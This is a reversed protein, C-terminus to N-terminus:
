KHFALWIGLITAIVSIAGFILQFNTITSGKAQIGGELRGATGEFKKELTTIRSDLATFRQESENRPVFTANQDSLTSRFENMADLRSNASKLAAELAKDKENLISVFHTYLTELTWGNNNM